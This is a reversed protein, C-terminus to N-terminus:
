MRLWRSIKVMVHFNRHLHFLFLYGVRARKTLTKQEDWGCARLCGATKHKDQDLCEILTGAIILTGVTAITIRANM